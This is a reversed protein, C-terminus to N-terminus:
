KTVLVSCDAYHLVSNAVSGLILKRFGGNGRTGIVIVDAEDREALQVIGQAPSVLQTVLEDKPNAVGADKSYKVAKALMQRAVEEADEEIRDTPVASGPVGMSWFLTPVYVVHAIRLEAKMGKAIEVATELARQANPSGDVAVLIRGLARGADGRRKNRRVVLTACPAHAAVGSSVSGLVVRKFGGLGRTGMVILGTEKKTAYDVITEVVSSRGQPVEKESVAVGAKKFVAAAEDANDDAKNILKSYYEGELPAARSSISPIASLITVESGFSKAIQAAVEAAQQASPSGDTAVLIRAFRSATPKSM